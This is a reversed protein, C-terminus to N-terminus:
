AITTSILLSSQQVCSETVRKIHCAFVYLIRIVYLLCCYHFQIDADTVCLM